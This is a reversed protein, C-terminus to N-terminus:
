ELSQLLDPRDTCIADLDALRRMDPPENVTWAGVKLGNARAHAVNEPTADPYNPFWGDAGAAAIGDIVGRADGALRDTTFWAAMGPARARIRRLARWDFGVFV